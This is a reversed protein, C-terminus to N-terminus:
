TPHKPGSAVSSIWFHVCVCGSNFVLHLVATLHPCGNLGVLIAQKVPSFILGTRELAESQLEDAEVRLMPREAPKGAKEPGITKVLRLTASALHVLCIFFMVLETAPWM